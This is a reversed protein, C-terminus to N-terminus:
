PVAKPWVPFGSITSPKNCSHPSASALIIRKMRENLVETSKGMYMVISKVDKRNNFSLLLILM